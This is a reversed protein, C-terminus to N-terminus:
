GTEAPREPAPSEGRPAAGEAHPAHPASMFQLGRIYGDRALPTKDSLLADVLSAAQRRTSPLVHGYLRTMDLHSHGLIEMIVREPVGAALMLTAATHRLDHWCREGIGLDVLTRKFHVTLTSHRLPRGRVGLFLLDGWQPDHAAPEAAQRRQHAHLVAVLPETLDLTRRGRATKPPTLRPQTDIWRLQHRVSLRGAELDIDRWHLGLMEAQRLGLRISLEYAAVFRHGSVADLLRRAEQPSLPNPDHREVRPRDVLAAVNRTALEWRVAQDLALRLVAHVGRATQPALGARHMRGLLAHVDQASLAEIRKSGFAPALHNDIASRYAVASSPRLNPVVVDEHWRELLAAVTQREVRVPKGQKRALQLALLKHAAEERTAGYVVKRQRTGDKWGLNLAACWKGDSQRQYISGENQGRTRRKPTM